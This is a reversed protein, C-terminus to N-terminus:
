RRVLLEALVDGQAVLSRGDRTKGQWDRLIGVPATQDYAVSTDM